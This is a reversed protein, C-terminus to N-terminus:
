GYPLLLAGALYGRGHSISEKNVSTGVFSRSLPGIVARGSNDEAQHARRKEENTLSM